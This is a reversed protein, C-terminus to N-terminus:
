RNEWFWSKKSEPVQRVIKEIIEEIAKYLAEYTEKDLKKELLLSQSIKPWGYMLRFEDRLRDPIEEYKLELKLAEIQKELEEVKKQIQQKKKM